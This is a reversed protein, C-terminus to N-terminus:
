DAVGLAEVVQAEFEVGQGVRFKCREAFRLTSGQLRFVEWRLGLGVDGEDRGGREGAGQVGCVECEGRGQTITFALREDEGDRVSLLRGIKGAIGAAVDINEPADDGLLVPFDVERKNILSPVDFSHIVAVRRGASSDLTAGSIGPDEETLLCAFECLGSILVDLNHQDRVAPIQVVEGIVPLVRVLQRARSPLVALEARVGELM